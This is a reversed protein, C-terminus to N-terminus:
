GLLKIIDTFHFPAQAQTDKGGKHTPSNKDESSAKRNEGHFVQEISTDYQTIESQKSNNWNVTKVLQTIQSLEKTQFLTSHPLNSTRYSEASLM